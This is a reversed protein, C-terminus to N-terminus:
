THTQTLTHIPIYMPHHIQNNLMNNPYIIPQPMHIKNANVM